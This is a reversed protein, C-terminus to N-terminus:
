FNWKLSYNKRFIGVGHFLGTGLIKVGIPASIERWPLRPCLEGFRGGTMPNRDKNWPM